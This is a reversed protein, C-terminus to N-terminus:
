FAGGARSISFLSNNKDASISTTTCGDCFYCVPPGGAPLSAVHDSPEPVGIYQVVRPKVRLRITSSSATRLANFMPLCHHRSCCVSSMIYWVVTAVLGGTLPGGIFMQFIAAPGGTCM